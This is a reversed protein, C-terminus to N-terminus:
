PIVRSNSNSIMSLAQPVAVSYRGGVIYCVIHCHIVPDIVADGTSQRIHWIILTWAEDCM